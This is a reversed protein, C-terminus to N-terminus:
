RVLRQQNLEGMYHALESGIFETEDLDQLSSNSITSKASDISVHSSLRYNPPKNTRPTGNSEHDGRQQDMKQQPAFLNKTTGPLPLSRLKKALVGITAARPSSMFLSCKNSKTVDNGIQQEASTDNIINRRGHNVIGNKDEGDKGSLNDKKSVIDLKSLKIEQGNGTTEETNIEPRCNNNGENLSLKGVSTTLTTQSSYSSGRSRHPCSNVAATDAPSQVPFAKPPLKREILAVCQQEEEGIPVSNHKNCQPHANQNDSHKHQDTTPLSATRLPKAVEDTGNSTNSRQRQLHSSQLRQLQQQQYQQHHQLQHRNNQQCRLVSYSRGKSTSRRDCGCPEALTTKFAERFKHSMINYLVPNVTTSMYYLIGSTYTLTKYVTFLVPSDSKNSRAYVALLRQAHFPAWCIFFAVVVAVLMRIVYNQPSSSKCSTRDQGGRDTSSSGISARKAAPLLRSRRLKLGILAYLVTILTMPAVFFVLTSIEFAHQVLESTVTCLVVDTGDEAKHHSVGFQIAQPVALGLAVLWIAMVLRVARSLKSFTHSQFPHCIAVYREVTFATITLVTANASTEAAFGQLICVTEGLVDPYGRWWIYYMEQPLGSVLLLLDSVALSFLYYNTATHMHKNRAIVMCTSVNGVLGTLLIVAYIVTIPILIYLPDRKSIVDYDTINSSELDDSTPELTQFTDNFGFYDDFLPDSTVNQEFDINFVDMM